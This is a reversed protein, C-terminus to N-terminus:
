SRCQTNFRVPNSEECSGDLNTSNSCRQREQFTEEAQKYDNELKISKLFFPQCSMCIYNLCPRDSHDVCTYLDNHLDTKTSGVHIEDLFNCPVSFLNNFVSINHKKCPIDSTLCVTNNCQSCTVISPTAKVIGRQADSRSRSSSNGKAPKHGRSSLIGYHKDCVRYNKLNEVDMQQPSCKMEYRGIMSDFKRSGAENNCGKLCCQIGGNLRGNMIVTGTIEELPLFDHFPKGGYALWYLDSTLQFKANVQSRM